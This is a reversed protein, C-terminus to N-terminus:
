WVVREWPASAAKQAAEAIAVKRGWEIDDTVINGANAPDALRADLFSEALFRLVAAFRDELTGGSQERLARAAALELVFSGVPVANRWRWLKLLKITERDGERALAIHRKLSTRRVAATESAYLDAYEYSDDLARGPVVDIHWGPTYRLRLAVNHRAVHHGAAQLRREVTRYLEEPADASAPFYMVVDLDFQAAIMTKKGFSGGYYFRPRGEGQLIGEIEVRRARVADEIAPDVRQQELIEALYSM